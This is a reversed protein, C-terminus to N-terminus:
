RVRWYSGPEVELLAALVAGGVKLVMERLEEATAMYGPEKVLSDSIVLVAGTKLKRMWGLSFLAACEMEVALIGREGWRRAFEPDEAYFADSSFVPGAKFEMGERTLSKALAYVVEPHPAAAMCVGPVYMGLSGGGAPYAAGTALVVDGVDLEEVLGGATGLRVVIKAGLMALEEVVIAASPGGIGHTAITVPVGEYTGTYTLFGRCENVVRAGELLSSLHEVRTPDGAIIVREAVDEERARVHFPPGAASM